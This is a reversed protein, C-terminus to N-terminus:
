QVDILVPDSVFKNLSSRLLTAPLNIQGKFNPRLKLEIKLDCEFRSDNRYYYKNLYVDFRDGYNQIFEGCNWDTPWTSLLEFGTPSVM